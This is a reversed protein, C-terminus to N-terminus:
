GKKRVARCVHLSGQLVLRHLAHVARVVLHRTKAAVLRPCNETPHPTHRGDVEVGGTDGKRPAVVAPNDLAGLPNLELFV